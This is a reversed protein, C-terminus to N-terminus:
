SGNTQVPSIKKKKSSQLWYYTWSIAELSMSVVFALQLAASMASVHLYIFILAVYTLRHVWKWWSGLKQKSSDNSTVWLPFLLTLALLGYTEHQTLLLTFGSPQMLKPYLGMISQHFIALLFMIVGLQRRFLMLSATFLPLLGFRKLMGPVLTSLYFLASFTGAKRAVEDLVLWWTFDAKWFIFFAVITLAVISWEIAQFVLTIQKRNVALWRHVLQWQLFSLMCNILM